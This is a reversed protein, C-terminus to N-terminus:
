LRRRLVLGAGAGVAALGGVAAAPAALPLSAPSGGASQVTVDSASKADEGAATEHHCADDAGHLVIPVQAKGSFSAGGASGHTTAVVEILDTADFAADHAVTVTITFPREDRYQIGPAHAAQFMDSAPSVVVTAWAPQKTVTYTVPIGSLSAHATLDAVLQAEGPLTMSAGPELTEGPPHLRVSVQGSQQASASPLLLCALLLALLAIRFAKM